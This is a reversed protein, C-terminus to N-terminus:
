SSLQLIQRDLQQVDLNLQQILQDITRFAKEERIFFLTEVRLSDGYIDKHFNLIYVEYSVSPDGDKFTPRIGINMVGYYTKEDHYVKVGYVGKKLFPESRLDVDLNATPFGITRGVQRGKIVTGTLCTREPPNQVEM